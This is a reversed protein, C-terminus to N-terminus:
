KKCKAITFMPQNEEDFPIIEYRQTKRIEKNRSMKSLSKHLFQLNKLYFNYRNASKLFFTKIKIRIKSKITEKKNNTVKGQSFFTINKFHRYLNEEFDKKSFLRINKTNLDHNSNISKDDNIISIIAIGKPNLHDSIFKLTDSVNDTISLINFGLVTDFKLSEVEKKNKIQYVIKNNDLKRLSVYEQNDLLDLNWVEDVNKELLLKSASYNLYKGCTIDLVKGTALQNAWKYKVMQLRYIDGTRIKM